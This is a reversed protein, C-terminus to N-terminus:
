RRGSTRPDLDLSMRETESTSIWRADGTEDRGLQLAKRGLLVGHWRQRAILQHFMREDYTDKVLLYYIRAPESLERGLRDIRGERQELRAPNWELDFHVLHRSYRHLDIGESGVNTAVLIWPALATKFAEATADRERRTDDGTFTAALPANAIAGLVAMAAYRKARAQHEFWDTADLDDDDDETRLRAAREEAGVLQLLEKRVRKAFSRKGLLDFFVSGEISRKFSALRQAIKRGARKRAVVHPRIAELIQALAAPAKSRATRWEPRIALERHAAVLEQELAQRIPGVVEAKLHTFVLLKRPIGDDLSAALDEVLQRRAWARLAHLKPRLPAGKSISLVKRLEVSVHKPTDGVERKALGLRKHLYWERFAVTSEIGHDFVSAIGEERDLDTPPPVRRAGGAADIAYYHRKQRGVWSCAVLQGLVRQADRRESAGPAPGGDFAADAGKAYTRVAGRKLVKYASANGALLHKTLGHLETMDLQFPTATLLLRYMADHVRDLARRAAGHHAEDVVVVDWPQTRLKSVRDLGRGGPGLFVNWNCVYTGSPLVYRGRKFRGRPLDALDGRRRIEFCQEPDLTRAVFGRSKKRAWRGLRQQFGEPNRLENSWKAVLGPPVLILVHAKRARLRVDKRRRGRRARQRRRRWDKKALLLAITALAEWTKGLGVGDAFLCGIQEPTDQGTGDDFIAGGRDVLRKRGWAAVAAQHPQGTNFAQKKV